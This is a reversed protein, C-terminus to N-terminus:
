ADDRLYVTLNADMTVEEFYPSENAFRVSDVVFFEKSVQLEHLFRKVDLYRGSASMTIEYALLKRDKIHYPKYSLSERTVNCSAACDELDGLLVAFKRQHPISKELKQLEDRGRAYVSDTNNAKLGAEMADIKKRAQALEPKQRLSIALSCIVNALLLLGIAALFFKRAAYIEQITQKM